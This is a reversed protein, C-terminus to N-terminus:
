CYKTSESYNEKFHYSNVKQLSYFTWVGFSLSLKLKAKSSCYEAPTKRSLQSTVLSRSSCYYAHLKYCLSDTWQSNINNCLSHKDSTEKHRTECSCDALVLSVITCQQQPKQANALERLSSKRLVTYTFEVWWKCIWSSGFLKYKYLDPVLFKLAFLICITFWKGVNYVFVWLVQTSVGVKYQFFYELLNILNQPFHHPWWSVIM